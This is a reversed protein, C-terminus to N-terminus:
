ALAEVADAVELAGDSRALAQAMTQAGRVLAPDDLAEAIVRRLRVLSAQKRVRV